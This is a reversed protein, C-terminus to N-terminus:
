CKERWVAQYFPVTLNGVWSPAAAREGKKASALVSAVVEGSREVQISLMREQAGKEGPLVAQSGLVRDWRSCSEQERKSWNVPLAAVALPVAVFSLLPVVAQSQSQVTFVALRALTSIELTAAVPWKELSGMPTLALATKRPALASFELSIVQVLTAARLWKQSKEPAVMLTSVELCM